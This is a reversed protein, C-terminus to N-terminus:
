WKFEAVDFTLNQFIFFPKTESAIFSRLRVASIQTDKPITIPFEYDHEVPDAESESRAGLFYNAMQETEYVKSQADIVSLQSINFGAKASMRMTRISVLAIEFGPAAVIKGGRPRGSKYWFPQYSRLRKIATITVKLSQHEQVSTGKIEPLEISDQASVRKDAAAFLIATLVFIKLLTIKM